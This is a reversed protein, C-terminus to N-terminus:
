STLQIKKIILVNLFWFSFLNIQINTNVNTNNQTNTNFSIVFSSFTQKKKRTNLLYTFNAVM